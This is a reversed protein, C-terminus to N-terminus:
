AAKVCDSMLRSGNDNLGTGNLGAPKPEGEMKDGMRVEVGAPTPTALLGLRGLGEGLLGKVTGLGLWNGDGKVAVRRLSSRLLSLPLVVVVVAVVVVVPPLPLPLPLPLPPLVGLRDGLALGAEAGAAGAAGAAEGLPRM